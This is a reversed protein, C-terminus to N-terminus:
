SAQGPLPHSSPRSSEMKGPIEVEVWDGDSLRYTDRLKVDTAVEVITRPHHGREEENAVTRLIFAPRGLISCPVIYVTVTGNYEAADLRICGSPVRWPQELELNLTGPFLLMGTKRQYHDQLKEIWFSFNGM